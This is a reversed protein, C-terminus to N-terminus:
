IILNTSSCLCSSSLLHLSHLSDLRMPSKNVSGCGDESINMLTMCFDEENTKLKYHTLHIANATIKLSIQSVIIKYNKTEAKMDRSVVTLGNEM